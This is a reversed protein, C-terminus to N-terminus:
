LYKYLVRYIGLCIYINSYIYARIYPDFFRISIRWSLHRDGLVYLGNTKNHKYSYVLTSSHNYVRPSPHPPPIDKKGGVCVSVLMSSSLRYGAGLQSHPICRAFTVAKREREEKM